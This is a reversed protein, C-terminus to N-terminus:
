LFVTAYGKSGLEDPTIIVNKPFRSIEKLQEATIMEWALVSGYEKDGLMSKIKSKAEDLNNAEIIFVGCAKRQKDSLSVWYNIM